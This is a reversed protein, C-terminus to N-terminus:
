ETAEVLNRSVDRGVYRLNWTIRPEAWNGEDDRVRVEGWSHITGDDQPEWRWTREFTVTQGDPTQGEQEGSRLVMRGEDDLGGTMVTTGGNNGVWVQQWRGDGLVSSLSLGAYREPQGAVRFNDTMQHWHQVIACGNMQREILDIGEVVGSEYGFAVWEGVWFDFDTNPAAHCPNQFETDQAHAVSAITLAFAAAAFTFRRM